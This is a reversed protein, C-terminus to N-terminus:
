NFRVRWLRVELMMTKALPSLFAAGIPHNYPFLMEHSPIGNPLKLILQLWELKTQDFTESATFEGCGGPTGCIAPAVVLLEHWRRHDPLEVFLHHFKAIRTWKM